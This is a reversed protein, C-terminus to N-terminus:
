AGFRFIQMGNGSLNCGGPLGWFIVHYVANMAKEKKNINESLASAYRILM